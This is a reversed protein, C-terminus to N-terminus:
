LTSFNLNVSEFKADPNERVRINIYERTTEVVEAEVTLEMAKKWTPHEINIQRLRIIAERNVKGSKDVNFAHDVIAKLNANAGETWEHFCQDILEKALQLKENFVIRDKVMHEVQMDGSFGTLTINGKQSFSADYQEGARRKYEQLEEIIRRKYDAMLQQLARADTVIRELTREKERDLPKINQVPYKNGRPDVWNGENDKKAM